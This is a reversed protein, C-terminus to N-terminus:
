GSFQNKLTSALNHCHRKQIHFLLYTVVVRGHTIKFYASLKTEGYHRSKISGIRIRIALFGRQVIQGFGQM